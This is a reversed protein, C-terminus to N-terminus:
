CEKELIVEYYRSLGWLGISPAFVQVLRWGEEAHKDIVYKYEREADSGAWLLGKGIRIFKYRYKQVM